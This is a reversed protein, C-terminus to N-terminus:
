GRSAPRLVAHINDDLPLNVPNLLRMALGARAAMRRLSSPTFYNVHDPHRFGCWRAGAVRRNLSAYNPVKVYIAGGPALKRAAARLVAGPESEHELYSRLVVGAFHGDPFRAIGEVAPAEVCYGGRARMFADARAALDRSVEIGFPTFPRDVRGGAACGVDLVNGGDGFLRRLRRHEDARFIRTRWRTAQDIRYLVPARRKRRVREAASTKEWAYDDALAATEPPNRLYVFACTGCAVLDWPPRAYAALPAPADAGCDPCARVGTGAAEARVLADM